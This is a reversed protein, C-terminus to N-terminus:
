STVVVVPKACVDIFFSSATVRSRVRISSSEPSIVLDACFDVLLFRAPGFFPVLVSFARVCVFAGLPHSVFIRATYLDFHVPNLLLAVQTGHGPSNVHIVELTKASLLVRQHFKQMLM